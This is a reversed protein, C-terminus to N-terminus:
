LAAPSAGRARREVAACRDMVAHLGAARAREIADGDIVGLQLWVGAAGVAIAEDIHGGAFQSRRFVNVVDIDIGARAAADLTPYVEEGLVTQGVIMPNVPVIRYGAAQLDQAVEHSHRSERPSLGVVGWTHLALMADMAASPDAHTM